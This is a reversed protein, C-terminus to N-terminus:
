ILDSEITYNLVSGARAYQMVQLKVSRRLDWGGRVVMGYAQGGCEFSAEFWRKSGAVASANVANSFRSVGRLCDAKGRNGTQKMRRKLHKLRNVGKFALPQIAHRFFYFLHKRQQM